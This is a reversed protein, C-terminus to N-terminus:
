RERPLQHDIALASRAVDDALKLWADAMDMLKQKDDGGLKDALDACERARTLFETVTFKIAEGSM